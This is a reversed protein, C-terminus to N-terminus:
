ESDSDSDPGDDEEDSSSSAVDGRGAQQGPNPLEVGVPPATPLNPLGAVGGASGEMADLTAQLANIREEEAVEDVGRNRGKPKNKKPKLQRGKGVPRVVYEFLKLLTRQDLMDIDLEIEQNDAGLLDPASNRIIEVVKELKDGDFEQIKEALEKKMDFTVAPQGSGEADDEYDSTNGLGRIPPHYDIDLEGKAAVMKSNKTTRPKPASPPATLTASPPATYSESPKRKPPPRVRPPPPQRPAKPLAVPQPQQPPQPQQQQQMPMMQPGGYLPPSAAYPMGGMNQMGMQMGGMPGGSGQMAAKNRMMELNGTLLELQKQMMAIQDFDNNGMGGYGANYGGGYGGGWGGSNDDPPMEAWKNYFVRQLQVGMNNVPNGAPNFTFCNQILLKFDAEFAAASPYMGSDLKRRMTGLDMPRRIIKPYEPIGLAVYDVPEYFVHAFASHRKAFLEKLIEKCFALQDMQSHSGNGHHQMQQMQQMQQIQFAAQQQQMQLQQFQFQASGPPGGMGMGMGGSMPGLSGSLGSGSKKPKSKSSGGTSPGAKPSYEGGYDDYAATSTRRKKDKNGLRGMPSQSRKMSAEKMAERNAIREAEKAQLSAISPMKALQKEFLGDLTQAWLSIASERGNFTYCNQWILRMDAAFDDSSAYQHNQLKREITGMDMPQSIIDAYHPIGLAVPDVPQVFPGAEPRKKLYRLTSLAYKIQEKPMAQIPQTPGAAPTASASVDHSMDAATPM